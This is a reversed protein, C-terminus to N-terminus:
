SDVNIFKEIHFIKRQSDPNRWVPHYSVLFCKLRHTQFNSLTEGLTRVCEKDASYRELRMTYRFIIKVVYEIYDVPLVGLDESFTM